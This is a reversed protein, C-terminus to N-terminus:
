RSERSTAAAKVLCVVTIGVDIWGIRAFVFFILVKLCGIVDDMM